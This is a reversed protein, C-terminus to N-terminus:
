VDVLDESPVALAPVSLVFRSGGGPPREVTSRAATRRPWRACSRSASAPAPCAAPRRRATSGTSSSRCTRTPRCGPRPRARRRDRRRGRGRGGRGRPEMQGRQRAPQDRGPRAAGAGRARADAPRRAPLQVERANREAREVADAVLVDLRVDDEESPEQGDRALEVIDGVLAAMEAFQQHVDRELKRRSEDPLPGPRLLVEFNTRLSTLPTRLEHSADAVLQRQAAVAQELAALMTNFSVALRSLEDSGTADIRESLDHTDAVHEATETLKRVPRLAERAVFAGLLAALAVGGVAVLLFWIRLKSLVIDADTLRRAIQLSFGPALTVTAVRLHVGQVTMTALTLPQPSQAAALAAATPRAATRPHVAVPQPDHRRVRRGATTTPPARSRAGALARAFVAADALPDRERGRGAPGSDVQGYLQQGVVVYAIACAVAVALAVASAAALTLRLRFSVAGAARLRDRAQHPDAAARRGGRDQPAPLRHLRRALEVCLRLRVGVGARLDDGAHAGPAPAADLLELLLYETRTTEIVRDGRRAEYTNPDITLDAFRLVGQDDETTTRRLLARLRALLEELAFPKALYDDAGADLGAVRDTVQDRATLMLVPTRDGNARLRRCVELGSMHPMMVDLIVADPRSSAVRDLAARGDGASAVSYGEQVLARDLADVM